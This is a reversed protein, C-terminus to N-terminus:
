HLEGPSSFTAMVAECVMCLADEEPVDFYCHGDDGLLQEQITGDLRIRGQTSAQYNGLEPIYDWVEEEESAEARANVIRNLEENTMDTSPNAQPNDQQSM